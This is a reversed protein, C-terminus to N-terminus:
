CLPRILPLAPAKPLQLFQLQLLCFASCFDLYGDGGSPPASVGLTICPSSGDSSSESCTPLLCFAATTGKLKMVTRPRTDLASWPAVVHQATQQPPPSSQSPLSTAGPSERATWHNPSRPRVASPALKIGVRSIFIGCARRHPWFFFFFSTPGLPWARVKGSEQGLFWLLAANM